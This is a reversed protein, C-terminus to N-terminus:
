REHALPEPGEHPRGPRRVEVDQEPHDGGPPQGRDHVAGERQGLRGGRDAVHEVAAGGPLDRQPESAAASAARGDGGAEPRRGVAWRLANLLRYGGDPLRFPRAAALVTAAGARLGEADEGLLVGRVLADDDPVRWPATVLGAAVVELGAERLLGEWGGATRLEHDPEVPEDHAAAVAAEVTDLDNRRAEAWGAVAVRGGPVTVRVAEALTAAPDATLQVANVAVVVDVSADPWPLHEAAAVRVDADPAALRALRVMGPAPDAGAAVAGRRVVLALMEGSGCGVDLVRTGPGIGAAEVVAHRAPDAFGGWRRAWEAAVASWADEAPEGHETM